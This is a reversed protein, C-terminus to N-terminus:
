RNAKVSISYSGSKYGYVCFYWLNDGSNDLECIEDRKGGKYPRCDYNDLDPKAGKKVYLDVDETLNKIKVTVSSYTKDINTYYTKWKGQEVSGNEDIAFIECSCGKNNTCTNKPTKPCSDWQDIVGDNDSDALIKNNTENFLKQIELESLARNYIRVEDISGNFYRSIDSQRGIDLETESTYKINGTWITNWSSALQGNLYVKKTDGSKWTAVVHTWENLPVTVDTSGETGTSTWGQNELGIQFHIGGRVGGHVNRGELHIAAGASDCSDCQSGVIISVSSPYSIPKIWAVLSIANITALSQPVPKGIYIYDDKGDFNFASNLTDFRDATLNAGHVVGNINGNADNANGNFPYYLLLGDNLYAFSVKTFVFIVFLMLWSVYYKKM